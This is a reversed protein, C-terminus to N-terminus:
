GPFMLNDKVIECGRPSIRIFEGAESQEWIKTFHKTFDMYFEENERKTIFAHSREGEKMGLLFGIILSSDCKCLSFYPITDFYRCHMRGKPLKEKLQEALSVYWEEMRQQIKILKVDNNYPEHKLRYGWQVSKPKLILIEIECNENRIKDELVPGLNDILKETTLAIIQVSRSKKLNEEYIKTLKERRGLLHLSPHLYNKVEEFVDNKLIIEFIIATFASTALSCGFSVVITHHIGYKSILLGSLLLIIESLIRYNQKKLFSFM